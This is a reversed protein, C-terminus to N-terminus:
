AVDDDTPKPFLEKLLGALLTCADTATMIGVLKDDKMVLASDIKREALGAVVDDVRTAIDVLYVEKSCITEVSVHAAGDATLNSAVVLDTDSIVGLLENGKKVPLHHIEHESMMARAAGVEAEADISFPFPTM